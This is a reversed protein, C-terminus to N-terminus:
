SREAVSVSSFVATDPASMYANTAIPALLIEKTTNVVVYFRGDRSANMVVFHFLDLNITISSRKATKVPGVNQTLDLIPHNANLKL